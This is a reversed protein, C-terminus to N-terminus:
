RVVYIYSEGGFRSGSFTSASPRVKEDKSLASGMLFVLSNEFHQLILRSVFDAQRM